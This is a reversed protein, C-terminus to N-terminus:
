GLPARSLKPSGRTDYRFFGEEKVTPSRRAIGGLSDCGEGKKTPTINGSDYRFVEDEKRSPTVKGSDYRYVQQQQQQQSDTTPKHAPSVHGSGYRGTSDEVQKIGQQPADYRFRDGEM